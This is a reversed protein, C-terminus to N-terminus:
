QARGTLQTRIHPSEVSRMAAWLVALSVLFFMVGNNRGLIVQTL